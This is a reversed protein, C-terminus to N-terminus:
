FHGVEYREIEVLMRKLPGWSRRAFKPPCKYKSVWDRIFGMTKNDSPYGSGIDCHMKRIKEIEQDRTVKAVISAAAVVRNIRDAHHMSRLKVNVRPLYSLIYDKYRDPNVDCSDVFVEDVKLKSIVHAMMRAELRNLRKLNVNHDIVRCDMKYISISSALEKLQICLNFRSKPTLAKSDKVGMNRLESVTDKTFSIGAVVLPGIISGRGAEDVGGISVTNNLHQL